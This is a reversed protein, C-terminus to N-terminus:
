RLNALQEGIQGLELQHFQGPADHMPGPALRETEGAPRIVLVQLPVGLLRLKKVLQQRAADWALLVCICGSVNQVHDLVLGELQEFTRNRCPQVAALIELMQDAHALGRGATFAYAEAGVFLLDLLSEQTLVTCAFSAAVSVAEEFADSYPRTTFTDLVLAHRVFFEDEYEKVIPKGAKAWSRWHIHRPPDGRRYERLAVFEESQGIHSAMAVGGQQYKMQGPLAVPPIEYRRPLILLSQPEAQSRLARYIGLPDPRAFTVGAFQVLGRRIPTLEVRVEGEQQPHLPPLDVEKTTAFKFPSRFRRNDFRFPRVHRDEDVKYERWQKFRPRPDVFDDILTLGAQRHRSLNKVLVSYHLPLGVTALRPLRREVQFNTRFGFRFLFALLLIVLLPIFAQYGVASDADLSAFLAVLTAGVVAQGIVTFRRKTWYTSWTAVRYGRYFLWLAINVPSFWRFQRLPTSETSGSAASRYGRNQNLKTELAQAELYFHSPRFHVNPLPAPYKVRYTLTVLVTSGTMRFTATVEHRLKLESISVLGRWGRSRRLQFGDATFQFDEPATGRFFDATSERVRVLDGTAEMQYVERFKWFSWRQQKLIQPM